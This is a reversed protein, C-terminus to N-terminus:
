EEHVCIHVVVYNSNKDIRFPFLVLPVMCKEAVLPSKGLVETTVLFQTTPLSGLIVIHYM